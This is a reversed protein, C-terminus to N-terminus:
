LESTSSLKYNVYAVLPTEYKLYTKWYSEDDGLYDIDSLKKDNLFDRVADYVVSKRDWGKDILLKVYNMLDNLDDTSFRRKLFMNLQSGNVIVDM